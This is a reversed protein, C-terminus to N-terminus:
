KAEIEAKWIKQIERVSKAIECFRVKNSRLIYLKLYEDSYKYM